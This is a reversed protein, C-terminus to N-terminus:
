KGHSRQNVECQDEKGTFLQVRVEKLLQALSNLGANLTEQQEYSGPIRQSLDQAEQTTNQLLEAVDEVTFRRRDSPLRSNLNQTTGTLNNLNARHLGCKGSCRESSHFVCPIEPGGFFSM